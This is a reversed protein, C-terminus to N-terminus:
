YRLHAKYMADIIVDTDAKLEELFSRYQGGLKTKAEELDSAFEELKRAVESGNKIHMAGDVIDWIGIGINLAGGLAAFLGTSVARAVGGVIAGGVKSGAKITVKAVAKALEKKADWMDQNATQVKEILRKGEATDLFKQLEMIIERYICLCEAVIQTCKCAEKAVEGAEKARKADWGVRSITAGVSTAAGAVSVVVGPVTLVAASIGFTFPAAILGVLALLGGGVSVGGGTTQVIGTRSATKDLAEAFKKLESCSDSVMQEWETFSRGICKDIQKLLDRAFLAGEVPSILSRAEELWKERQDDKWSDKSDSSELACELVILSHLFHTVTLTTDVYKTFFARLWYDRKWEKWDDSKVSDKLKSEFDSALVHLSYLDKSVAATDVEEIWQKRKKATWEDIAGWKMENELEKLLEGCTQVAPAPPDYNETAM